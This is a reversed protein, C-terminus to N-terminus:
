FMERKDDYVSTHLYKLTQTPFTGRPAWSDTRKIWLCSKWKWESKVAGIRKNGASSQRWVRLICKMCWLFNHSIFLLCCLRLCVQTDTLAEALILAAAVDWTVCAVNLHKWQPRLIPPHCPSPKNVQLQVTLTSIWKWWMNWSVLRYYVSAKTIQISSYCQQLQSCESSCKPRM